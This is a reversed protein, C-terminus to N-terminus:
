FRRFIGFQLGATYFKSKIDNQNISGLAYNFSPGVSCFLQRTFNYQVALRGAGSCYYTNLSGREKSEYVTTSNNNTVYLKTLNGILFNNEIGIGLAIAWKKLQYGYELMLPVKLYQITQETRYNAKYVKVSATNNSLLSWGNPMNSANTSNSIVASTDGLVFVSSGSTSSTWNYTTSSNANTNASSDRTILVSSTKIGRQQYFVGTNLSWHKNFQYGLDLGASFSFAPTEDSNYVSVEEKEQSNSSILQRHAYEPTFLLGAFWHKIKQISDASANSTVATSSNAAVVSDKKQLPIASDAADAVVDPATALEGNDKAVETEEKNKIAEKTENTPNTREASVNKEKLQPSVPSETKVVQKAHFTLNKEKTLSNTPAASARVQDTNKRTAGPMAQASTASKNIPAILKEKPQAIETSSEERENSKVRPETNEALTSKPAKASKSSTIDKDAVIAKGFDGQTNWVFFTILVLLFAAIGSFFYWFGRRRKKEEKLKSDVATWVTPRPEPAFNEFAEKFSNDFNNDSM